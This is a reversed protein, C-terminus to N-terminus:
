NSFLNHKLDTLEINKTFINWDFDLWKSAEQDISLKLIKLNKLLLQGFGRSTRAGFAIKGKQLSDLIIYLLEELKSILDNQAQKQRIYFELKFDFIAGPELIEYDFKKKEIAVKNFYNLGVGDRISINLNEILHSDYFIILSQFTEKIEETEQFGFVERVISDEEDSDDINLYDFLFSRITGSITSGSIFIIGEWDRMLDNESFVSEGSGINLPSVTHLNGRIYYRKIIKDEVM